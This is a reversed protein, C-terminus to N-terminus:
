RNGRGTSDEDHGLDRDALDDLDLEIEGADKVEKRRRDILKFNGVRCARLVCEGDVNVWLIKAQESIEVEVYEPNILDIM